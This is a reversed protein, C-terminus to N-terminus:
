EEFGSKDKILQRFSKSKYLLRFKLANSKFEISKKIKKIKEEIENNLHECDLSIKKNKILYNKCCGCRENKIWDDVIELEIKLVKEYDLNLLGLLYIEPLSLYTFLEQEIM